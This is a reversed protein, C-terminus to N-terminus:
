SGLPNVTEAFILLDALGFQDRDKQGLDPKWGPTKFISSRSARMLDVFTEALIYSGVPGMVRGGHYADAEKLTYYWLPTRKHFDAAKLIDRHPGVLVEAPSLPTLKLKEAVAQGSPLGLRSGRVLDIVALSRFDPNTIHGLFNDFGKLSPALTADIKRARNSKPNNSIGNFGTFDFFRTWDVIWEAPLVNGGGGMNGHLGTFRFLDFLEAVRLGESRHPSQKFRNWEYTDRLLSHGLRFAGLSFEIPVFVRKSARKKYGRKIAEALVSEEVIRPLFDHLILWQFHKVVKERARELLTLGDETPDELLLRDVVKNHFKLFAVHIQALALNEDNRPDAIIAARPNQPNQHDRPLDNFYTRTAPPVGVTSTVGVVLHTLDSEYLRKNEEPKGIGYLSELDLARTRGQKVDEPKTPATPIDVTKDFSIDHAIFQALYTYGAPLGPHEGLDPGTIMARGLKVLGADTKPRFPQLDPFLKGFPLAPEPAAAGNRSPPSAAEVPTPVPTEGAVINAIEEQPSQM